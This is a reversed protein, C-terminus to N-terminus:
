DVLYPPVRTVRHTRRDISEVTFRYNTWHKVYGLWYQEVTYRCRDKVVISDFLKMNSFYYRYIAKKTLKM